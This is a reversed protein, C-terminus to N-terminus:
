GTITYVKNKRHIVKEAPWLTVSGGIAREGTVNDATFSGAVPRVAKENLPLGSGGTIRAAGPSSIRM